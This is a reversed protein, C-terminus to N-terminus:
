QIVVTSDARSTASATQIFHTGGPLVGLYPLVREAVKKFVPAAIEGGWKGVHPEDVMVLMTLRPQEVPAFGLFSVIVKSSSYSGAEKDFKQATGTKGAVRYEELKARKGTGKEVALELIQTMMAATDPFIADKMEQPKNVQIPTGHQDLVSAIVHPKMLRGGNAIASMARVLQIPTVSIEQGMAISSLSRGSWQGPNSLSGPSEGPLDIGTKEGFGFAKLYHYFRVPGLADAMKIAGVNSSQALAESFTMWSSKAPDHVITGAVPMQGENGYILTMPTMVEEQLAGAAAVIKLTSGPEYPNTLIWNLRETDTFKQYQNPDYTPYLAWALIAGTMPDMMVISGSQAESKKIIAALEEEAIFQVVEDITLQLSYGAPVRDSAQDQLQAIKRGLADRQYQVLNKHGRLLPEYQHEVGGLGQSDIGAYGVVHSVLTGKPYFRHPEKVLELGPLNLAEIKKALPEPIHRQVWVFHENGTLEKGLRGPDKDLIPALTRAVQKPNAVLAPRAILSSMEVNMALPHGRYDYITGRDPRIVITKHHQRDAQRAGDEAQLVQLFFLRCFVLAFGLMLGLCLLGSRVRCIPHVEAQGTNM